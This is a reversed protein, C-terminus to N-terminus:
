VSFSLCGRSHLACLDTFLQRWRVDRLDENTFSLHYNWSHYKSFIPHTCNRCALVTQAWVDTSWAMRIPDTRPCSQPVSSHEMGTCFQPMSRACSQRARTDGRAQRLTASVLQPWLFSDWGESAVESLPVCGASVPSSIPTGPAAQPAAAPPLCFSLSHCKGAMRQLGGSPGPQIKMSNSLLLRM